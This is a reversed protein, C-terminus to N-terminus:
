RAGADAVATRAAAIQELTEPSSGGVEIDTMAALAGDYWATWARLIEAEEAADGGAAIAAESLSRETALRELAAREVEGVLFRAVAGDATTLTMASVAACVGVNTLTRASVNEIRDGDTHYFVDTFHWLLLGPVGARLFPVHDSGGEFPNTRVVWGNDAGQDLCRNLVFDNFYHPTLEDVTM